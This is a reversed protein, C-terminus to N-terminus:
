WKTYQAYIKKRKPIRCWSFDPLGTERWKKTHISSWVHAVKPLAITLCCNLMKECGTFAACFQFCVEKGGNKWKGAMKGPLVYVFPKRKIQRGSM